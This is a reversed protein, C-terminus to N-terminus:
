AAGEELPQAEAAWRKNTDNVALEAPTLEVRFPVGPRGGVKLLFRGRGPPEAEQSTRHDWSPPDQWSALTAEEVKSLEVVERLKPMEARPLGGLFLMGSREVLGRAKQVDEERPLALLDSMTHSIMAVGVGVSRNLRSLADVRDVMGQGARLARWLEDMVVFNHRRPALGADALAHQNEIAAFGTSWCALLAAAQLDGDTDDISSVDFVVPKDALMPTTTPKGFVDGLRGGRVLSILTAELEETVDRYREDDGRDLAVARVEAPAEQIVDLLDSMLPARNKIRKPLLRIAADLISDERVSPPTKRAITILASVMTLQRGHAEALVGDHLKQLQRVRARVAELEAEDRSTACELEHEREMAEDLAAALKAVTERSSGPDLINLNGYGRGIKIVQGGLAEVLDVHEGKLDGLILPNVGYACLGLAIRRILSSKGLGPKGLVFCSPNSILKARMFWSIPDGCVTAGTETNRGIPVGVMPTGSGLAFPWLGCVQVSTGRYELAPDIVRMQGAGPGIWGRPGPLYKLEGAEQRRKARAEERAVKREARSTRTSARSGGRARALPGAPSQSTKSGFVGM